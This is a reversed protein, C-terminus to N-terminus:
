EPGENNKQIAYIVVGTLAAIGAVAFTVGTAGTAETKYVLNGPAEVGYLDIPRAKSATWDSIYFAEDSEFRSGDDKLFSLYVRCQLPSNAKDFVERRLKINGAGSLAKDKKVLVATNNRKAPNIRVACTSTHKTGPPLFQFAAKSETQGSFTGTGTVRPSEFSGSLTTSGNSWSYPVNGIVLQSRQLDISFGKATNNEVSVTVPGEEGFFNYTITVSDKTQM